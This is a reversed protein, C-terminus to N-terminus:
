EINELRLYYKDMWGNITTPPVNIMEALEIQKIGREELLKKLKKGYM